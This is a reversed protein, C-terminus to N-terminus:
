GNTIRKIRQYIFLAAALISLAGTAMLAKQFPSIPTAPKSTNVAFRDVRSVTDRAVERITDVKLHYRDRYQLTTVQVTCGRQTITQHISDHLYISDRQIIHLTDTRVQRTVAVAPHCSHLMGLMAIALAAAFAFRVIHLSINDNTPLM